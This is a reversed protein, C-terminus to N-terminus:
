ITVYNNYSFVVVFLSYPLLIGSDCIVSGYASRSLKTLPPGVKVPDLGTNGLFGINEHNKMHPTRVGKSGRQIRVHSLDEAGHPNPM